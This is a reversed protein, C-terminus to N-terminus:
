ETGAAIVASMGASFQFFVQFILFPFSGDCAHKPLRGALVIGFINSYSSTFLQANETSIDVTPKCSIFRSIVQQKFSIM